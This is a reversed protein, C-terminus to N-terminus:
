KQKEWFPLDYGIVDAWRHEPDVFQTKMQLGGKYALVDKIELGRALAARQAEAPNIFELHASGIGLAYGEEAKGKQAFPNSLAPKFTFKKAEDKGYVESIITGLERETGTIDLYTLEDIIETVEITRPM